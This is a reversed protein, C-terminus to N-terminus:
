FTYGLLDIEEEYRKAIKNKTETNYYDRYFTHDGVLKKPLPTYNNFIDQIQKFDEELTEYRLILDIGEKVWVTQPDGPKFNWGPMIIFEDLTDLWKDFTTWDLHQNNTNIVWQMQQNSFNPHASQINKLFCYFSIMREWPNRVVSFTFNRPGVLKMPELTPHDYWEIIYNNNRNENMWVGISTGASKPVHVFTVNIDGHMYVATM